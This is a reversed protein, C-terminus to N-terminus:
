QVTLTVAGSSTVQHTPNTPQITASSGGCGVTFASAALLVLGFCALLWKSSSTRKARAFALPLLLFPLVIGAAAAGTVTQTFVVTIQYSGKPTTASTAISVAGTTSSYSCTAGTPLNLCNVSVSTVTTPLTVPYTATTGATVAVAATTITPATATSSTSDVEFQLSNSAASAGPTQVSVAPTGASAINGAPVQATLKTASVFTTTLASSGWYVNSAATFGTGNVTLTFAAGGASTFAPAISGITPVAVPVPNVVQSLADSTSAKFNGDGQYVATISYTAATLSSTTYSASGGSLTGQGLTTSGAMFNVSGTAAGGYTGSVTATLKVSQGVTAPNLSSTLVTHTDAKDVAVSAAASTSGAYNLDGGYVATISNTAVPLNTTTYVAVGGSLAATGLQTSGNVFQVNEGDTPATSGASVHATLTVPQGFVAEGPDATLTTTTEAHGVAAVFGHLVSNADQYTGAVVGNSNVATAITGQFTGTGSNPVAFESIGGDPTRLFGHVVGDSDFYSGAIDGKADVGIGATGGVIKIDEAGVTPPVLDMPSADALHSASVLMGAVGGLISRDRGVRSHSKAAPKHAKYMRAISTRLAPTLPKADPADFTKMGGNAFYVFGHIMSNTDLYSGALDGATDFQLPDSLPAIKQAAPADFSSFTGSATRVFGHLVHDTDYYVGGLKGSPDIAYVATGYVQAAASAPVDVTSIAGTPLRVFGHVGDSTSYTGAVNNMGNVTVYYTGQKHLEDPQVPDVTAITGGAPLVFGHWNGDLDRYIGSVDGAADIHMPATGRGPGVGAGPSDIVTIAGSPSRLFGHQTQNGDVYLGLLDGAADFAIPATGLNANGGTTPAEFTTPKGGASVIFAHVANDTGPYVGAVDGAADMTLVVTGMMPGTVAGPVDITTLTPAAAHATGPLVVTLCLAAVSAIGLTQEFRKSLSKLGRSFQARRAM